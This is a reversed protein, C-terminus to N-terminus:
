LLESSSSLIQATNRCYTVVGVAVLDSKFLSMLQSEESTGAHVCVCVRVTNREMRCKKKGGETRLMLM